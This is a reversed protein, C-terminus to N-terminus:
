IKLVRQVRSSFNGGKYKEYRRISHTQTSEPLTRTFGFFDSNQVKVLKLLIQLFDGTQCGNKSKIYVESWM